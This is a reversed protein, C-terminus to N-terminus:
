EGGFEKMALTRALSSLAKTQKLGDSDQFAMLMALSYDGAEIHATIIKDSMGRGYLGSAEIIRAVAADNGALSEANAMAGLARDINARLEPDLGRRELADLLGAVPERAAELCTMAADRHGSVFAQRACQALGWAKTEAAKIQAALFLAAEASGSSGAQFVLFALTNDRRAPDSVSNAIKLTRDTDGLLLWAWAEGLLSQSARVPDLSARWDSVEQLLAKARDPDPGRALSDALLVAANVRDYLEPMERVMEIAADIDGSAAVVSPLTVASVTKGTATEHAKLLDRALDVAADGRATDGREYSVQAWGAVENATQSTTAGHEDLVARAEAFRGEHFLVHAQAMFVLRRVAPSRIQEALELGRAMRGSFLMAQSLNPVVLHWRSEPVAGFSREALKIACRANPSAICRLVENAQANASDPAAAAMAAALLVPALRVMM